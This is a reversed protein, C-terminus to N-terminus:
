KKVVKKGDIINIGHKPEAIKMGDITYVNKRLNKEKPVNRIATPNANVVITKAGSINVRDISSHPFTSAHFVRTSLADRYSTYKDVGAEDEEDGAIFDITYTGPAYDDPVTVLFTGVISDCGNQWCATVYKPVMTRTQFGFWEYGEKVCAENYMKTLNDNKSMSARKAAPTGDEYYVWDEAYARHNMSPATVTWGKPVRLGALSWDKKYRPNNDGDYAVTVTVKFTEGATVEMPASTRLIKYCSSLTLGLLLVFIFYVYKKM